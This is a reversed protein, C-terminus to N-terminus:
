TDASRNPATCERNRHTFAAFANGEDFKAGCHPCTKWVLPPGAYPRKARRAHAARPAGCAPCNQGKFDLVPCTM